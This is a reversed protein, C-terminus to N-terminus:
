EKKSRIFEDVANKCKKVADIYEDLDDKEVMISEDGPYRTTFYLGNVLNLSPRDLNVEPLHSSIYKSLKTLNHTRLIETKKANDASDGLIVYEDILHKLYKECTEQAMAGMANGVLGNKYAAMLFDYNNDAFDYYTKLEEAM